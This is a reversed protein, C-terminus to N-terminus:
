NCYPVAFGFVLLSEKFTLLSLLCLSGVISPELLVTKLLVVWYQSWFMFCVFWILWCVPFSFFFLLFCITVISSTRLFTVLKTSNSLFEGVFAELLVFNEFFQKLSLSAFLQWFVLSFHTLFCGFKGLVTM